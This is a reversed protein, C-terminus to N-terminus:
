KGGAGELCSEGVEDLDGSPIPVELDQSNSESVAEYQHSYERSVKNVEVHHSYERLIRISLSDLMQPAHAGFPPEGLFFFAVLNDVM